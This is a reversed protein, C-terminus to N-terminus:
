MNMPNVDSAVLGGDCLIDEGTLYGNRSDVISALLFAIEDANGFRKIAAYELTHCLTSVFRSTSIYYARGTCTM